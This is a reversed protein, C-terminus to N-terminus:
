SLLQRGLSPTRLRAQEELVMQERFAPDQEDAHEAVTRSATSAAAAANDAAAVSGHEAVTESPTRQAVAVDLRHDLAAISGHEIVTRANDDVKDPGDDRLAVISLGAVAALALGVGAAVIATGRRRHSAEPTPAAPPEAAPALMPDDTTITM